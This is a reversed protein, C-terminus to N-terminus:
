DLNPVIDLREKFIRKLEGWEIPTFNIQEASVCMYRFDNVTFRTLQEEMTVKQIHLHAHINGFVKTLSCPHLPFHSLWFGDMRHYARIDKFHEMYAKAGYPDHNGMILIKRSGNLRSFNALDKAKQAVDGMVYVKDNVGVVSNWNAIIAEDHEEVTDWPRLKPAGEWKSMPNVMDEDGFHPDGFIWTNRM